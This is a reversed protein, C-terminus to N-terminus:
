PAAAVQYDDLDHLIDSINLPKTRYGDAGAAYLRAIEQPSADASLVLIPIIATVPDARLAHLVDIGNMDPLHLDLMVLTPPESRAMKLGLTGTEAHSLIWSPRRQVVRQMLAVNPRNDEIYLVSCESDPPSGPRQGGEDDIVAPDFAIPSVAAPLVVSFTSGMGFTSDVLLEGGMIAVLRQTLALGIGTGPITTVQQGLRDFPTFLRPLDQSRIGIGTDVIILRVAGEGAEATVTVSGASTNYKIANSVLNLIVQLLRRRDAQVYYSEAPAIPPDYRLRIGAATASLGSLGMAEQLLETVSVSELSIDFQDTEIRSIDLVDDIM